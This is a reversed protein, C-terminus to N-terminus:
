IGLTPALLISAFLLSSVGGSAGLSMYLSDNQHKVYTPLDSFIIGGLYLLSFYLITKNEFFHAYYTFAIQGFSYLVYMNILLHPWNAHIFGSTIFRYWQRGHRVAYPRMIWRNMLEPSQFAALSMLVTIGIIIYILFM